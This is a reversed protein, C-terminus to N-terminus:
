AAVILGVDRGVPEACAGAAAACRGEARGCTACGIEGGASLDAAILAVCAFAGGTEREGKAGGGGGAMDEIALAVVFAAGSAIRTEARSALVAACLELGVASGPVEGAQAVARAGVCREFESAAM